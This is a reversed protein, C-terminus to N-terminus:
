REDLDIDEELEILHERETRTTDHEWVSNNDDSDSNNSPTNTLSTNPINKKM